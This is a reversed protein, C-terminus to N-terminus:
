SSLQRSRLTAMAGCAVIISMGMAGILTLRDHWLIYGWMSSFIVGSYQLSTAVFTNGTGVSRTVASQALLGSIGVGALYAAERLNPVHFGQVLAWLGGAVMCSLIFYFVIRWEPEGLHAMSRIQLYALASCAGGALGMGGGLWWDRNFDPHLLIVVGGFGIIAALVCYLDVQIGAGRFRPLLLLLVIWLPSTYSLCAATALPLLTVAKLGLALSGIGMMSRTVHAVPARTRLDWGRLRALWLLVLVGVLGRYFIIEGVNFRDSALKACVAMVSFMLTAFIMWLARM